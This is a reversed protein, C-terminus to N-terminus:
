RKLLDIMIRFIVHPDLRQCILDVGNKYSNEIFALLFVVSKSQLDIYLSDLDTIQRKIISLIIECQREDFKLAKCVPDNISEHDNTGLYLLEQNEKCPGNIFETLVDFQRGITAYTESHDVRYLEKKKNSSIFNLNSILANKLDILSNDQIQLWVPKKEVIAEIDSDVLM